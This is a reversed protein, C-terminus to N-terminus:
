VRFPMVIETRWKQSDPEQAPDTFYIEWPDGTPKAGKRAVWEALAGYAAEMEDYPGVYTMVAAPGGPLSSTTVDGTPSIRDATPFGAEVHFEQGGLRHYRAFPPGAPSMRQSALAQAVAGFARGIFPAIESVSLASQVVATPREVLDRQEIQHTRM